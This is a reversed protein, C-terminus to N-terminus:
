WEVMETGVILGALAPIRKRLDGCLHELNGDHHSIPTFICARHIHSRLNEVLHCSKYYHLSLGHLRAKNLPVINSHQKLLSTSNNEDKLRIPQKFLKPNFIHLYRICPIMKNKKQTTCKHVSCRIKGESKSFFFFNYPTFLKPPKKTKRIPAIVLHRLVFNQFSVSCCGCWFVFAFM